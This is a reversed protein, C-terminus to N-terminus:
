GSTHPVMVRRGKNEVFIRIKDFCDKDEGGLGREDHGRFTVAGPGMPPHSLAYPPLIASVGDM